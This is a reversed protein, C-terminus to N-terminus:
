DNRLEEKDKMLDNLVLLIILQVFGRLGEQWDIKNDILEELNPIMDYALRDLLEVPIPESITLDQKSLNESYDWHVLMGRAMLVQVLEELEVSSSLSLKLSLKAEAALSGDDLLAQPYYRICLDAFEKQPAIFRDVDNRRRSVQASAAQESYGREKHDRSVKWYTKLEVEPDLFIKLDIVKRSKPLYFTHLGSLVIFDRPEILRASTFAGTGHDYDVREVARGRKLNFLTDAQRHLFNAKPDLHTLDQGKWNADGRAWKHDADGELEVVNNNLLMKIDALLTSKGAGSDGGIGIVVAKERKYISNSRVGIRYCFVINAFLTAELLTFALSSLHEGAIFLDVPRGCFILAPYDFKHFFVFYIIYVVYLALGAPVIRNDRRSYKIMFLSLFPAIWVYWGPAPVILAVFLAFVINLFADLLDTNIKTYMAFRVYAMCAALVPLFIHLSGIDIYSEFIQSQRPNHLVMAQFGPSALYPAIFFLMVAITAVAYFLAMKSKQNRFIYILFIPFAAIVHSKTALALGTFLAAKLTEHKRLFYVGTFLIATPILDLQSHIYCAYIIIPSLFYYWFVKDIRSPFMKLLLVAILIDSLLTPLKFFFNVVYSNNFSLFNLPLCFASVLYLMLPQYPFQDRQSTTQYFFDWTNGFHSIFHQVFPIFLQNMYGSSFLVMLAMKFVVIVAFADLGISAVARAPTLAQQAGTLAKGDNLKNNLPRPNANM